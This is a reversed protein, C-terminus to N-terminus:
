RGKGKAETRKATSPLPAAKEPADCKFKPPEAELLKAGRMDYWNRDAMGEHTYAVGSPQKPDPKPM